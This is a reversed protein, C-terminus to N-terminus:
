SRGALKESFRRSNGGGFGRPTRWVSVGKLVELLAQGDVGPLGLKPIKLYIQRHDVEGTLFATSVDGGEIDWGMSAAVVLVLQVALLDATPADTRLHDLDPDLHGGCVM